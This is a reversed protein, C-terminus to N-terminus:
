ASAELCIDAIRRAADPKALMRAASGMAQLRSRVSLREFAAGLRKVFDDGEAVLVAGGAAVMARANRTQHDDVANPYPVLIAPAGAAALEALTLAGSRCIVLDAWAYAAAMDDEFPVVEAEIQAALYAAKAKDFHREGCQHRVVVPLKSGRRRLVEPLAVNLSQAGQSGGLVLLRLPGSRSTYRQAPAPLSSISARVPNGVWEGGEFVNEFGTLVRTARRALLKNTIGAISNQEHVVLPIKAMQAAFGGPAAAFGGMSLVCRPAHKKLLGRAAITAALLRFPMTLMTVIGKGRLGGISLTELVLGHRPVLRTELGGRSGIWVVPVGCARLEDAVALGPFIHGGTGGAMIMVPGSDVQTPKM